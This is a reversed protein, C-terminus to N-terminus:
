LLEKISVFQNIDEQYSYGIKQLKLMIIKGEVNLDDCFECFHRFENRLKMNVISLLMHSDMDLLQQADMKIGEM